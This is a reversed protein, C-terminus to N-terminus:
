SGVSRIEFYHDPLGFLEDTTIQKGTIPHTSIGGGDDDDLTIILDQKRMEVACLRDTSYLLPLWRFGRRYMSRVKPHGGRIWPPRREFIRKIMRPVRKVFNDGPGIMRKRRERRDIDALDDRQDLRNTTSGRETRPTLIVGSEARSELKFIIRGHVTSPSVERTIRAFKLSSVLYAVLRKAFGPRSEPDHFVHRYRNQRNDFM